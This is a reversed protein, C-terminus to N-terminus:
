SGDAFNYFSKLCIYVLRDPYTWISALLITLFIKDVIYITPSNSEKYLLDIQVVDEPLDHPKFNRLELSEIYNQMGKNYAIKSFPTM